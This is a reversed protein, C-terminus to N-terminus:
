YEIRPYQNFDQQTYKFPLDNIDQRDQVSMFGDYGAPYDIDEGVAQANKIKIIPFQVDSNDIEIAYQPSSLVQLSTAGEVSPIIEFDGPADGHRVRILADGRYVKTGSAFGWAETLEFNTDYVVYYDGEQENGDPFTVLPPDSMPHMSDKGLVSFPNPLEGLSTILGVFNPRAPIVADVKGTVPNYTLGSGPFMLGPKGFENLNLDEGVAYSAFYDRLAYAPIKYLKEEHQIMFLDEPDISPVESEEILETISGKMPYGQTSPEGAVVNHAFTGAFLFRAKPEITVKNGRRVQEGKIWGNWNTEETQDDEYPLVIGYAADLSDHYWIQVNFGELTSFLNEVEYKKDVEVKVFSYPVSDPDREKLLGLRPFYEDNRVGPYKEQDETENAWYAIINSSGAEVSTTATQTTTNVTTVSTTTIQTGGPNHYSM